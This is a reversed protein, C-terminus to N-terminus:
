VKHVSLQSLWTTQNIFKLSEGIVASLLCVSMYVYLTISHRIYAIIVLIMTFIHIIKPGVTIHRALVEQFCLAKQAVQASIANYKCSNKDQFIVKQSFNYIKKNM